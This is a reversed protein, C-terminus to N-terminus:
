VHERGWSMVEHLTSIGISVKAVAPLCEVPRDFAIRVRRHGDSSIWTEDYRGSQFDRIELLEFSEKSLSARVTELLSPTIEFERISPTENPLKKITM